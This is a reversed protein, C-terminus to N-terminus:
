AFARLAGYLVNISLGAVIAMQMRKSFMSGEGVLGAAASSGGRNSFFFLPSFPFFFGAVVGKFLTTYM